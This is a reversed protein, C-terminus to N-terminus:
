LRSVPLEEGKEVAYRVLEVLGSLERFGNAM